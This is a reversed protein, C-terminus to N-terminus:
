GAFAARMEQCVYVMDVGISRSRGSRLPALCDEVELRLSTMEVKRGALTQRKQAMCM